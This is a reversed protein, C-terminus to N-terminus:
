FFLMPIYDAMVMLLNESYDGILEMMAYVWVILATVPISTWIAMYGLKMLEPVM